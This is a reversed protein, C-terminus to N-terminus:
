CSRSARPPPERWARALTGADEAVPAGQAAITQRLPFATAALAAAAKLADRRTVSPTRPIM